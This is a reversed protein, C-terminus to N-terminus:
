FKLKAVWTRLIMLVPWVLSDQKSTCTSDWHSNGESCCVGEWVQHFLCHNLISELMFFIVLLIWKWALKFCNLLPLVICPISSSRSSIWSKIYLSFVRGQCLHLEQKCVSPPGWSHTMLQFLSVRGRDLPRHVFFPPILELEMNVVYFWLKNTQFSLWLSIADSPVLKMVRFVLM